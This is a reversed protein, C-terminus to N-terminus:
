SGQFTTQMIRSQNQKNSKRKIFRSDTPIWLKRQSGLTMMEKDVVSGTAGCCSGQRAVPMSMGSGERREVRGERETTLQPSLRPERSLPTFLMPISILNQRPKQLRSRRSSSRSLSTRSTCIM